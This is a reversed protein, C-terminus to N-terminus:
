KQGKTADNDCIHNQPKHDKNKASTELASAIKLAKSLKHGMSRWNPWFQFRSRPPALIWCPEALYAVGEIDGVETLLALIVRSGVGGKHFGM